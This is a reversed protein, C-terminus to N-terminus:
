GRAVLPTAGAFPEFGQRQYVGSSGPEAIVGCWHIGDTHLQALLLGVLETAIGRQRWGPHVAVDQLYADSVRDSIARGMGVVQTGDMACVFAHSGAIIRRLHDLDDAAHDWWGMARYLGIIQAHVEEASTTIPLEGALNHLTVM